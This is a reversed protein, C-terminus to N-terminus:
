YAKGMVPIKEYINVAWLKVEQGLYTQPVNFVMEGLENIYYNERVIQNPNNPDSFVVERNATDVKLIVIAHSGDLLGSFISRGSLSVSGIAISDNRLATELSEPHPIYERTKLFFGQQSTESSIMEFLENVLKAFNTSNAGM